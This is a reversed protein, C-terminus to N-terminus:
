NISKDQNLLNIISKKMNENIGLIDTYTTKEEEEKEKIETESFNRM